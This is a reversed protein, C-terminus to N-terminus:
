QIARAYAQELKAKTRVWSFESLVANRARVGMGLLEAEPLRAFYRLAQAIAEASQQVRRGVPIREFFDRFGIANTILCPKQFALAELVSFPIGAEWRSPHVFVDCAALFEFKEVVYRPGAFVVMQTLGLHKAREELSRRKGRWDPGVIVVCAHELSDRARACADLLLDLGKHFPDLRGLFLFVRKAKTQPFTDFLVNPNLASPDPLEDVTIGHPAVVIPRVIGYRRIHDVELDSVAHVFAARNWFDRELLHKFLWKRFRKRRLGLPSLGGHPSAAYRIGRRRLWAALFVHQPIFVSHFHAIDPIAKLLAVKMERPVALANRSPAFARVHVGDIPIPRETTLSFVFVEHERAQVRSLDYIFKVVGNASGPSCRGSLVHVIRM